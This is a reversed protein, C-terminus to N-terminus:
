GCPVRAGGEESGQLQVGCLLGEKPILILQHGPGKADQRSQGTKPNRAGPQLVLITLQDGPLKGERQSKGAPM